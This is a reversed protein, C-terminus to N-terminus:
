GCVAEITKLKDEGLVATKAATRIDAIVQESDGALVRRAQAAVWSETAPALGQERLKRTRRLIQTSHIHPALM